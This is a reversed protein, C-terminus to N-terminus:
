LPMSLRPASSSSTAHLSPLSVSHGGDEFSRRGSPTHAGEVRTQPAVRMSGPMVPGDVSFRVYPPAAREKRAEKMGHTLYWDYIKDLHGCRAKHAYEKLRDDRALEIDAMLRHMSHDMSERWQLRTEFRSMRRMMEEKTVVWDEVVVPEGLSVPCSSMSSMCTSALMDAQSPTKLRAQSSSNSPSSAEKESALRKMQKNVVECGEMRLALAEAALAEAQNEKKLVSGKRRSLSANARLRDEHTHSKAYHKLERMKPDAFLNISRSKYEGGVEALPPPLGDDDEHTAECGSAAM